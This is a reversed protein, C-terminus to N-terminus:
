DKKAATKRKNKIAQVKHGPTATKERKNLGRLTKQRLEDRTLPRDDEESLNDGSDRDDGTSPPVITLAGIPAGPGQGLLGAVGGSSMLLMTGDQGDVGSIQAVTKKPSNVLYNLTLLENSKHEILGLFQILNAETVGHSGIGESPLNFELHARVREPKKDRSSHASSPQQSSHKSHLSLSPTKVLQLDPQSPSEKALDEDAGSHPM